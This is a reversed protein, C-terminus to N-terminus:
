DDSDSERCDECVLEDDVIELEHSECWWGCTACLDQETEIMIEIVREEDTDFVTVTEAVSHSSGALFQEVEQALNSM